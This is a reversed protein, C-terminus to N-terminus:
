GSLCPCKWIDPVLSPRWRACRRRPKQSAHPFCRFTSTNPSATSAPFFGMSSRWRWSPPAPADAVPLPMQPTAAPPALSPAVSPPLCGLEQLAAAVRQRLAKRETSIAHLRLCLRANDFHLDLLGTANKLPTEAFTCTVIGGDQGSIRGIRADAMPGKKAKASADHARCAAFFGYYDGDQWHSLPREPFRRVRESLVLLADRYATCLDRADRHDAGGPLITPDALLPILDDADRLSVRDLLDRRGSHEGIRRIRDRLDARDTLIASYGLMLYLLRDEAHLHSPSCQQALKEESVASDLKIEILLRGRKGAGAEPAGLHLALDYAKGEPDFSLQVQTPTQALPALRGALTTRQLLAGLVLQHLRESDRKVDFLLDIAAM